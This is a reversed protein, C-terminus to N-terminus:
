LVSFETPLSIGAQKPSLEREIGDVAQPLSMDIQKLQKVAVLPVSKHM